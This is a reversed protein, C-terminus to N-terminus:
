IKMNSMRTKANELDDEDNDSTQSELNRAEGDITVKWFIYPVLQVINDVPKPKKEVISSLLRFNNKLRGNKTNYHDSKCTVGDPFMFHVQKTGRVENTQIGTATIKHAQETPVCNDNGELNHIAAVEKILFSAVSPETITIGGGDEHLVAKTKKRDRMDYLPKYITIADILEKGIKIDNGRVVLLGGANREPHTL